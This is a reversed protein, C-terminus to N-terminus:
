VKTQVQVTATSSTINVSGFLDSHARIQGSLYQDTSSALQCGKHTVRKVAGGKYSATGSGFPAAIAASVTANLTKPAITLGTPAEVDIGNTVFAKGYLLGTAVTLSTDGKPLPRTYSIEWSLDTTVDFVNSFLTEYQTCSSGGGGGGGGGGCAKGNLMTKTATAPISTERIVFYSGVKLKLLGVLHGTRTSASGITAKGCRLPTTKASGGALHMVASGFQYDAGSANLDNKTNISVASLNSAFDVDSKPLLGFTVTTSQASHHGSASTRDLFFTLAANPDSSKSVEVSMTYPVTLRIPSSQLTYVVSAKAAPALLVAPIPAAAATGLGAAPVSLAAAVVAIPVCSRRLKTVMAMEGEM